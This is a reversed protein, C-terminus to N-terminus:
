GLTASGNWKKRGSDESVFEGASGDSCVAVNDPHRVTVFVSWCEVAAAGATPKVQGLPVIFFRDPRAVEPLPGPNRHGFRLRSKLQCHCDALRIRRDLHAAVSGSHLAALVESRTLDSLNRAGNRELAAKLMQYEEQSLRFIVLRDRRNRCM